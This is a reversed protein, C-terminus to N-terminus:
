VQTTMIHIAIYSELIEDVVVPAVVVPTITAADM